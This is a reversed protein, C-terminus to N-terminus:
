MRRLRFILFVVAAMVMSLFINTTTSLIGDLDGGQGMEMTESPRLIPEPMPVTLNTGLVTMNGEPAEELQIEIAARLVSVKPSIFTNVAINVALALTIAAAIWPILRWEVVEDGGRSFLVRFNLVTVM